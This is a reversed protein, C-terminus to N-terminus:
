LNLTQLLRNFYNKFGDRYDDVTVTFNIDPTVGYNEVLGGNKRIMLSTTLRYKFETTNRDSFEEVTGGAGATRVGVIKGRAYDQFMAPTADGGSFDVENTLFYVPKTYSQQTFIDVGLLYKALFSLPKQIKALQTDFLEEFLKTTALMSIPESVPSGAMYADHIKNLEILLSKTLAEIKDDPMIGVLQTNAVEIVQAFQRMFGQSPKVAFRMHANEDYKGGNLAKILLDCMLVVGGPNDTQDIILEDSVQQLKGVYYRISFPITYVLAPVYSPMRLFGITKGNRKFTGAFFSDSNLIPGIGNPPTIEKFDSPLKFTPLRHGIDIKIGETQPTQKQKAIPSAYGYTEDEMSMDPLHTNLNMLSQYQYAFKITRLIKDKTDDSIVKFLPTQLLVRLEREAPSEENGFDAGATHVVDGVPRDFLGIGSKHYQLNINYVSGNQAKMTFVASSPMFSLPFGSAESMASLQRAFMAHNTLDNGDKNFVALKGMYADLTEGNIMVLEDGLAPKQVSKPYHDLDIFSVITKGEAYSFQLPLIFKLTSPLGISVHADNLRGLFDAVLFYFENASKINALKGVYEAKLANWDLGITKNKISLPGYQGEIIAYLNTLQEQLRARDIPNVQPKEPTQAAQQAQPEPTQPSADQSALSVSGGLGAIVLVAVFLRPGVM